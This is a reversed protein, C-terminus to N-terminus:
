PTCQGEDEHTPAAMCFALSQTASVCTSTDKDHRHVNPPGIEPCRCTRPKPVGAKQNM